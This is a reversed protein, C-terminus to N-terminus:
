PKPSAGPSGCDCAEYRAGDAACVQGGSCGAPGICAQTAGPVCARPAPPPPAASPAPESPPLPAPERELRIPARAPASGCVVNADSTEIRVQSQGTEGGLIERLNHGELVTYGKDGCVQEARKLCNALPGKCSLQYSGDPQKAIGGAGKSCALASLAALLPLWSSPSRVCPLM